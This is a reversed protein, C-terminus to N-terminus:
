YTSIDAAVGGKEYSESNSANFLHANFSVGEAIKKSIANLGILV